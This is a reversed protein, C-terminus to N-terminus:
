ALRALAAQLFADRRDVLTDADLDPRGQGAINAIWGRMDAPTALAAIADFHAVDEAPAGYAREWGRLVPPAADPGFMLAADLRISALDIGYHGAGASDWDVIATLEDGDWLTNGQWLDGHLLVSIHHSSKRTAVLEAAKTLLSASRSEARDASFDEIEIPRERRPLTATAEVPIRHLLGAAAGLHELRTPTATVPIQSSGPLVSIILAPQGARAGDLDAAILEPAPVGFDFARRLADAETALRAQESHRGRDGTRVVGRQGNGTEVLWPMGGLRLGRCTVVPSELQDAVWTLLESSAPDM